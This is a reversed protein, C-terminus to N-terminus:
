LQLIFIFRYPKIPDTLSVFGKNLILHPKTTDNDEERDFTFVVDDYDDRDSWNSLGIFGYLEGQKDSDFEVRVSFLQFM